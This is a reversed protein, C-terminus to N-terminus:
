KLLYGTVFPTIKMKKIIKFDAAAFTQFWTKESLFHLFGITYAMFNATDRLHEVIILQGNPKLVAKIAKFFVAREADNRIEHASLLVFVTDCSAASLPINKTTIVQTEPPPPYALRARKISVETHLKEDYFDFIALSATSFKQTLLVSTEDFGASINAMKGDPKIGFDDLWKLSYLDSFDYIWCSVILSIVTTTIIGFALFLVFIEVTNGFINKFFYIFVLSLFAIIYFHWNFRIINLVGQLPKRLSKEM